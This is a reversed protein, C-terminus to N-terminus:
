SGPKAAPTSTPSPLFHALAGWVTTVILAIDPHASWFGTLVGTLGGAIATLLLAILSVISVTNM